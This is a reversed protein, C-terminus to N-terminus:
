FGLWFLIRSMGKLRELAQSFGSEKPARDRLRTQTHVTSRHWRLAYKRSLSLMKGPEDMEIEALLAAGDQMSDDSEDPDRARKKKKKKDRTLAMESQGSNPESEDLDQIIARGKGKAKRPQPLDQSSDSNLSMPTAAPRGVGTSRTKHRPRVIDLGRVPEKLQSSASSRTTRRPAEDNSYAPLANGTARRPTAVAVEVEVRRKKSPSPTYSAHDAPIPPVEVGVFRQRSGPQTRWQSGHSPTAPPQTKKNPVRRSTDSDIEDIIAHNNPSSNIKVKDLGLNEEHVCGAIASLSPTSSSPLLRRKRAAPSNHPNARSAMTRSPDCMHSSPANPKIDSSPSMSPEYQEEDPRRGRSRTASRPKPLPRRGARTATRSDAGPDSDSDDIVIVDGGLDRLNAGNRTGRARPDSRIWGLSGGDTDGDDREASAGNRDDEDESEVRKHALRLAGLTMEAEGEEAEDEDALEDVEEDEEDPRSRHQQLHIKSLAGSDDSADEDEDDESETVEIRTARRRRLDTSPYPRISSLDEIGDRNDSGGVFSLISTQVDRVM